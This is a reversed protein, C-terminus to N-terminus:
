QARKSPLIRSMETSHSWFRNSLDSHSLTDKTTGFKSSEVETSTRFVLLLCDRRLGVSCKRSPKSTKNRYQRGSLPILNQYRDYTPRSKSPVYSFVLINTILDHSRLEVFRHVPLGLLPLFDFTLTVHDRLEKVSSM